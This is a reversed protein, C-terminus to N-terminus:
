GDRWDLADRGKDRAQDCQAMGPPSILRREVRKM